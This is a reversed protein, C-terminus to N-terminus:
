EQFLGSPDVPAGNQTCKLYLNSGEVLFYKTPAAVKAIMQGADVYEGAAVTIEQLQGYTLEYGNGLEMTVANGIEADRFM